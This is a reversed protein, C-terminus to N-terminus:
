LYQELEEMEAELEETPTTSTGGGPTGIGPRQHKKFKTYVTNGKYRESFPKFTYNEYDLWADDGKENQPISYYYGIISQPKADNMNYRNMQASPLYVQAQLDTGRELSDVFSLLNAKQVAPDQSAGYGVIQLHYALDKDSLTRGTQGNAAAAMYALQLLTARARVNRYSAEGLKAKLDIGYKNAFRDSVRMIAADDGSRLANYLAQAEHGTGALTGGLNNSSFYESVPRSGNMSAIQDFNALVDNSFNLMANVITTPSASPDDIADDLFALTDNSINMTDLVALDKQKQELDFEVLEKYQPDKLMDVITKDGSGMKSPDVWMAEAQSPDNIVVYGAEDANPNKPEFVALSGGQEKPLFKAPRIDIVGARAKTADIVTLGQASVPTLKSKIYQTRASETATERQREGTKMASFSQGYSPAGEGTAAAAVTHGLLERWDFGKDEPEPGFIQYAEYKAKEVDTPAQPDAQISEYYTAADMTEPARDRLSMLGQVLHPAFPAIRQGSTLQRSGGGGRPTPFSMRTQPMQITPVLGGKGGPAFQPFGMLGNAM